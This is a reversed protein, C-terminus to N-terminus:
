ISIIIHWVFLQLSRKKECIMIWILGMAGPTLVLNFYILNAMKSEVESKHFADTQKKSLVCQRTISRLKSIIEKLSAYHYCINLM